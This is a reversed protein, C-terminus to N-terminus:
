ITVFNCNKSLKSFKMEFYWKLAFNSVKSRHINPIQFKMYLGRYKVQEAWALVTVAKGEIAARLGHKMHTGIYFIKSFM